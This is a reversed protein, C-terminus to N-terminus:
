APTCILGITVTHTAPKHISTGASETMYLLKQLLFSFTMLRGFDM